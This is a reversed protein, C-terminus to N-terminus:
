TSTPWEGKGIKNIAIVAQTRSDVGLKQLIASVHAKITAESVGLRYAIQKNLLGEGLMMLVRVQQPTLTSLRAIASGAATDAQGIEIEPPTWVAGDLVQRVAHRIRDVPQSKPVYGSAGFEIARRITVADDSASVIVVPIEPHEARLYLLGSLGQVGPMALDLLILDISSENGILAILEDLSGAEVIEAAEISRSLAQGLAGRFLPHDDVIVIRTTMM